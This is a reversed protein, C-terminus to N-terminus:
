YGHWLRAIIFHFQARTFNVLAIFFILLQYQYFVEFFLPLNTHDLPGCRTLSPNEKSHSAMENWLAHAERVVELHAQRLYSDQTSTPGPLFIQGPHTNPFSGRPATRIPYQRSPDLKQKYQNRRIHVYQHTVHVQPSPPLVTATLYM